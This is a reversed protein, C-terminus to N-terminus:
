VENIYSYEVTISTYQIVPESENIEIQERRSFRYDLDYIRQTNHKM